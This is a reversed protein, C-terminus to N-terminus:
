YMCKNRHLARVTNPLAHEESVKKHSTRDEVTMAWDEVNM